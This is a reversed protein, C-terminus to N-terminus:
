FLFNLTAAGLIFKIFEATIFAFVGSMDIKGVKPVHARIKKLVPETIAELITILPHTSKPFFIFAVMRGLLCFQFIDLILIIPWLLESALAFFPM